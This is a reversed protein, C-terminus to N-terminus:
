MLIKDFHTKGRYTVKLDDLDKASVSVREAKLGMDKFIIQIARWEGIPGIIHDNPSVLSDQEKM